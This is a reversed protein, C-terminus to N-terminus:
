THLTQRSPPPPGYILNARDCQTVRRANWRGRSRPMPWASGEWVPSLGEVTRRGWGRLVGHTNGVRLMTHSSADVLWSYCLWSGFGAM